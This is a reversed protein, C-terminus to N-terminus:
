GSKALSGLGKALAAALTRAAETPRRRSGITKNLDFVVPEGDCIAYDIKGYDMGLKRRLDWLGPPAPKDLRPTHKGYTSVPDDSLEARDISVDGLFYWERLCYKGDHMEPSFKTVILAPCDFVGAPVDRVSDFVRYDQKGRMPYPYRPQVGGPWRIGERALLRAALGFPSWHPYQLNIEPFGASNLDTKVIVPGDYGDGRVVRNRSYSSKRIDQINANVAAPYGNAFERYEDPVLSQDVHLFAVDAPPRRATGAVDTVSWGAREWEPRMLSVLYPADPGGAANKHHVILLRRSM